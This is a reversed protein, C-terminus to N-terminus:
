LVFFSLYVRWIFLVFGAGYCDGNGCDYGIGIGDDDDDIVAVGVADAPNGAVGVGACFLLVEISDIVSTGDGVM